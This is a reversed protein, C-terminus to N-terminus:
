GRGNLMRGRASTGSEYGSLACRGERLQALEAVALARVAEAASLMQAIRRGCEDLLRQRELFLPTSAIAAGAEALLPPLVRDVAEAERLLSDFHRIYDGIQTPRTRRLAEFAEDQLILLARYRDISARLAREVDM